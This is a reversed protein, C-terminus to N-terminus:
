DSAAAFAMNGLRYINKGPSTLVLGGQYCTATADFLPRIVNFIVRLSAIVPKHLLSPTAM